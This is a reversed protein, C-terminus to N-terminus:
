PIAQFQLIIEIDAQSLQELVVEVFERSNGQKCGILKSHGIQVVAYNAACLEDRCHVIANEVTAAMSYKAQTLHAFQPITNM